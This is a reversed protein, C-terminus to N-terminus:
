EVLKLGDDTEVLRKETKRMFEALQYIFRSEIHSSFFRAAEPNGLPRELKYSGQGFFFNLEDDSFAGVFLLPSDYGDQNIDIVGVLGKGRGEKHEFVKWYTSGDVDTVKEFVANHGPFDSSPLMKMEQNPALAGSL